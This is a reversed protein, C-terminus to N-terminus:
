IILSSSDSLNVPTLDILSFGSTVDLESSDSSDVTAVFWNNTQGLSPQTLDYATKQGIPFDQCHCAHARRPIPSKSPHLSEHNHPWTLLVIQLHEWCAVTCLSVSLM